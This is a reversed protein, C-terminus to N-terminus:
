RSPYVGGIVYLQYLSNRKGADFSLFVVFEEGKKVGEM